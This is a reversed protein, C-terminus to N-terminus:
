GALRLLGRCCRIRRIASPLVPYSSQDIKLRYDSGGQSMVDYQTDGRYLLYGGDEDHLDGDAVLRGPRGAIGGLPLRASFGGSQTWPIGGACHAPKASLRGRTRNVTFVTLKLVQTTLRNGSHKGPLAGLGNATWSM